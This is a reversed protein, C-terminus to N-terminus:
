RLAKSIRASQLIIPPIEGNAAKVRVRINIDYKHAPQHILSDHNQTETRPKRSLQLLVSQTPGTQSYLTLIICRHSLSLEDGEEGLLWKHVRYIVVSCIVQNVINQNKKLSDIRKKKCKQGYCIFCHRNPQKLSSSKHKAVGLQLM